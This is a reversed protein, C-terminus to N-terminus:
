GLIRVEAEAQELWYAMGMERYMTTAMTLHKQAEQHKGMRRHLKGLGLHCHAILPRMGLDDALAMAQRYGEQTSGHPPEQHASVEALTRVAWAKHGRENHERSLGFARRAHEAADTMRGALLYAESLWAVWRSYDVTRRISRDQEVVQRLLDLSEAIRGAQAYAYGLHSAVYSFWVPVNWDRCLGLGRELVLTARGLDGKHLSVLGAGFCAGILSFTHGGAEAIRLGQEARAVAEHFDGREALGWALWVRSLVSPFGAV